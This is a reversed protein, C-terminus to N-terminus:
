LSLFMVSKFKMRDNWFAHHVAATLPMASYLNQYIINGRFGYTKDSKSKSGEFAVLMDVVAFKSKDDPVEL